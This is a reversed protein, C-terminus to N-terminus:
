RVVGFVAGGRSLTDVFQLEPPRAKWLAEAVPAISASRSPVLLYRAGTLRLTERLMGVSTASDAPMLYHAAASGAAPVTQRGTYLYVVPEAATSVVDDPRTNLLTWRVLIAASRASERQASQWWGRSFGIANYQLYGALAFAVSALGALRLWKAIAFDGRRWGVLVSVGLVLTVGILPWIGWLFRDPAYPWIAVIGLYAALFGAITPARRLLERLGLAFSFGLAILAVGTTWPTPWVTFMARAIRASASINQQVVDFLFAAGHTRLADGLWTSYPGYSGELLGPLRDSHRATWIQWPLLMLVFSIVFVGAERYRRRHLLLLATMPVAAVGLTRVLALAGTLVGAALASRLSPASLTREQAWLAPVLLALFLPESFLVNTVALVPIALTFLLVGALAALSNLRLRTQSLWTIGVAAITLCLANVAKFLAVNAPFSPAIAWLLALLAPYGPPYRTGEPLGPLNLYRYGEGTALSKALILYIGDDYFVGALWPTMTFLSTALVVSGCVLLTARSSLAPWVARRRSSEQTAGGSHLPAGDSANM